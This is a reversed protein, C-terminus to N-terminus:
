LKFNEKTRLREYAVVQCIISRFNSLLTTEHVNDCEQLNRSLVLSSFKGIPVSRIKNEFNVKTEETVM